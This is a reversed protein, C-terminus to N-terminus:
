SSHHHNLPFLCDEYVDQGRTIACHDYHHKINEKKQIIGNM